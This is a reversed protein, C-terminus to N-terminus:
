RCSCSSTSSYVAFPYFYTTMNTYLFLNLVAIDHGHPRELERVWSYPPFRANMGGAGGSSGAHSAESPGEYEGLGGRTDSREPKTHGKDVLKGKYSQLSREIKEKHSAEGVGPRREQPSVGWVGRTESREPRRIISGTAIMCLSIM